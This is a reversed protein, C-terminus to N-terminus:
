FVGPEIHYEINNNVVRPKIGEVFDEYSYSQHFTVFRIQGNELLGDFVAKDSERQRDNGKQSEILSKFDKKLAIALAHNVANYTKGSGPPGYLIQNLPQNQVGKDILKFIPKAPPCHEEEIKFRGKSVKEVYLKFDEFGLNDGDEVAEWQNSFYYVTPLCGFYRADLKEAFFRLNIGSKLHMDNNNDVIDAESYQGIFKTLKYKKGVEKGEVTIGICKYGSYKYQSFTASDLLEKITFNKLLEKFSEFVFLNLIDKTVVINEIASLKLNKLEVELNHDIVEFMREVYPYCQVLIGMASAFVPHLTDPRSLGKYNGFEDTREVKSTTMFNILKSQCSASLSSCSLNIETKIKNILKSSLPKQGGIKKLEKKSTGKTFLANMVNNVQNIYPEYANKLEIAYAAKIFSIFPEFGVTGDDMQFKVYDGDFEAKYKKNGERGTKKLVKVLETKIEISLLANYRKYKDNIDDCKDKLKDILPKLDSLEIVTPVAPDPV